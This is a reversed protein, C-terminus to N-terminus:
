LADKRPDPPRLKDLEAVALHHEIFYQVNLQVTATFYLKAQEPRHAALRQEGTYFLAETLIEHRRHTNTEARVDEVLDAESIRGELSELIPRPWSEAPHRSAPGPQQIGMREQALWLFCQWYTAQEDDPAESIALRANSIVEPWREAIFDLQVSLTHIAFDPRSSALQRQVEVRAEDYRGLNLLSAALEAHLFTARPSCRIAKAYADAAKADDGLSSYAGGLDDLLAAFRKAGLTQACNSEPPPDKSLDFTVRSLRTQMADATDKAIVPPLHQTTAYTLLPTPDQPGAQAALALALPALLSV